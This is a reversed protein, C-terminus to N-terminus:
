LTEGTNGSAEQVLDVLATRAYREVSECYTYGARHALARATQAFLDTTQWLARKIDGLEYHAFTRALNCLMARPAWREIHRGSYFTDVTPTDLQTQWTIIRLLHEKMYVDCCRKATWLEGRALKKATWVVHYFFDNVCESYATESVGEREPPSAVELVALEGDKDVLERWGRAMIQGIYTANVTKQLDGAPMILIDVDQGGKFLARREVVAGDPGREVTMIAPQAIETLWRDSQRLMDCATSTLLLDIDSWEDASNNAHSMSGIVALSRISERKIAWTVCRDLMDNQRTM